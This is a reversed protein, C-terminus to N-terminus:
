RGAGGPWLVPRAAGEIRELLGRPRGIALPDDYLWAGILAAEEPRPAALLTLTAQQAEARSLPPAAAACFALAGQQLRQIEAIQAAPLVTPGLVPQGREDYGLLPGLPSACFTEFVERSELFVRALRSPGGLHALFGAAHGSGHRLMWILGPSTLLYAGQIPISRQEIRLIADLTRQITGAYGIDLLVMGGRDFIKLSDLHALISQRIARCHAELKEKRAPETLRDLFSDPNDPVPEGELGLDVAAEAMGAPQGRARVLLNILSERDEASRVAGALCLRRSLWLEGVTGAPRVTRLATALFGGDRMVGFVPRDKVFPLEAVWRAFAALIPGLRYYGYAALPDGSPELPNNMPAPMRAPMPAPMRAPLPPEFPEPGTDILTAELAAAEAPLATIVGPCLLAYPTAPATTELAREELYTRCAVFADLDIDRALWGRRKFELGIWNFQSM